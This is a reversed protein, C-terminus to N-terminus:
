QWQCHLMADSKKVKALILRFLKSMSRGGSAPEDVRCLCLLRVREVQSCRLTLILVESPFYFSIYMCDGGGYGQYKCFTSCFWSAKPCGMESIKIVGLPKAITLSALALLITFTLKM